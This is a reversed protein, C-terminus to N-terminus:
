ANFLNFSHEYKNLVRNVVNRYHKKQKVTNKNIDCCDATKEGLGRERHQVQRTWRM